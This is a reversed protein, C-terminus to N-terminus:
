KNRCNGARRYPSLSYERIGLFVPIDPAAKWPHTCIVIIFSIYAYPLWNLSFSRIELEIVVSPFQKFERINVYKFFLVKARAPTVWHISRLGIFQFTVPEIGLWPVQKPQPGPGWCRAHSPCGAVLWHTEWLHINGERKGERERM